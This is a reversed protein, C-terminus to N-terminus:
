LLEILIELCECVAQCNHIILFKDKQIRVVIMSVLSRSRTEKLAIVELLCVCAILKIAGISSGMNVSCLIFSSAVKFRTAIVFRLFNSIDFCALVEM